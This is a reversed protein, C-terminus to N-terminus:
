NANIRERFCACPWEDACSLSLSLSIIIITLKSLVM